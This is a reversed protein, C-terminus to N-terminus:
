SSGLRLVADRFGADAAFRRAYGAEDAGRKAKELRAVIARAARDGRLAKAALARVSFRAWRKVASRDEAFLVASRALRRLTAPATRREPDAANRAKERRALAELAPDASVFGLRRYFFFAGSAVAEENEKGIQYPDARFVRVGLLARFAAATRAYLYASEGDRFAYFVNFALDLKEALAYADGYGVPVGNRLVLFGFGARLPLRRECAIGCVLLSAGRGLNAEWVARPDGFTFAYLERYRCQVADRGLNLARAGAAASLRRIKPPRALEAALSARRELTEGFVFSRGPWRALTRSAPTSGLRWSLQLKMADYILAKTRADADLAEVRALLWSVEAGKAAGRPRAADLWARHDVGVDALTEEAAIPVLWPVARELGEPADHVEWDVTLAEPFRRAIRAAADYSFTMSVTTGGIGAAEYADFPALDYGDRALRAVERPLRKLAREALAAARRSRPHARHFLLADHFRILEAPHEPRARLAESLLREVEEAAGRRRTRELADLLASRM